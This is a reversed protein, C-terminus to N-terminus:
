LKLAKPNVAGDTESSHRLLVSGMRLLLSGLRRRIVRPMLSSLRRTAMARKSESFLAPWPWNLAAMDGQFAEVARDTNEIPVPFRGDADLIHLDGFDHRLPPLPREDKRVFACVNYDYRVFQGHKTDFGNLALVYMLQGISWGTSVHGGCVATEHPPVIVCLLGGPRLVRRVEGLTVGINHTHELVHSMIAVDITSGRFPLSEVLAEVPAVCAQEAWRATVGYTNLAIGTGIVRRARRAVAQAIAGQGM